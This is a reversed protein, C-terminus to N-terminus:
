PANALIRRGIAWGLIGAVITAVGLGVLSWLLLEHLYFARQFRDADAYFRQCEAALAGTLTGNRNGVKCARLQSLTASRGQDTAAASVLSHDVLAYTAAVFAGGTVLFLGGCALGIRGRVSRRGLFKRPLEHLSV